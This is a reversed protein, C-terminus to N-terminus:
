FEIGNCIILIQLTKPPYVIMGKLFNRGMRGYQKLHGIIPEIASRRKIMSKDEQLWSNRM